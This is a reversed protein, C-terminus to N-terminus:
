GAVQCPAFLSLVQDRLQAQGAAGLGRHGIVSQRLEGPQRIGRRGHALSLNNFVLLAGADIAVEVQADVLSLGHGAFFATEASLSAFENGCLFGPTSRVSPLVPSGGAAAEILRAFSGESYGSASEWAGHSQGYAILRRCLEDSEPWTRQALLPGLRVLRTCAAAMTREAPVYLVTFHAVDSEGVPDLPLGFDFHLTQFARSPPGEIPPIVFEGITELPPIGKEDRAADILEAAIDLAHEVTPHPGRSVVFSERALSETARHVDLTASVSRM